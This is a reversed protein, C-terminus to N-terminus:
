NVFLTKINIMTVINYKWTSLEPIMLTTGNEGSKFAVNQFSSPCKRPLSYIFIFASGLQERSLTINDMFSGLSINVSKQYSGSCQLFM